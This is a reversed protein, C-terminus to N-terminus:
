RGLEVELRRAARGLKQQREVGQRLALPPDELQPEAEFSLRPRELRDAVLEVQRALPHALQLTLRQSPQRSEALELGDGYGLSLRRARRQKRKTTM